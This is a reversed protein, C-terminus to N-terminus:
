RSNLLGIYGLYFDFIVYVAALIALGYIAAGFWRITSRIQRLTVERRRNLARDLASELQGSAEGSALLERTESHLATADALADTLTSGERLTAGAARLRLRVEAIPVTATATTHAEVLPVGSAYLAHLTELYPLEGSAAALPGFWPVELWKRGGTRLGRHGWVLLGGIAALGGLVAVPLWNHGIVTGVVLSIMLAAALLFVPYRLSALVDRSFQARQRRQAGRGRLAPGLRGAQFAATLVADESVTLRVGRAELAAQVSREGARPDAGLKALPLGADLASALDEFQMAAREDKGIAFM